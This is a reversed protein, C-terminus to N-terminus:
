RGQFDGAPLLQTSIVGPSSSNIVAGYFYKYGPNLAAFNGAFGTSAPFNVWSNTNTLVTNTS